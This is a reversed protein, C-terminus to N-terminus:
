FVESLTADPGLREVGPTLPERGPEAGLICARRAGLQERIRGLRQAATVDRGSGPKIELLTDARGGREILVDAEYGDSTRLIANRM